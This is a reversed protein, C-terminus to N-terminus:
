EAPVPSAVAVDIGAAALAQAYSLNCTEVVTAPSAMATVSALPASTQPLERRRSGSPARGDGVFLSPSSRPPSLGRSSARFLVQQNGQGYLPATIPAPPTEPGLRSRPTSVPPGLLGGGSSGPPLLASSVHSEQPHGPTPALRGREYDGKGVPSVPVRPLPLGDRADRAPAVSVPHTRHCAAELSGNDQPRFPLGGDSTAPRGEAIRLVPRAPTSSSQAPVLQRQQQQQSRLAALSKQAADLRSTVSAFDSGLPEIPLHGPPVGPDACATPPILRAELNSISRGIEDVRSRLGDDVIPRLLLMRLLRTNEALPRADVGGSLTVSASLSPACPPTAEVATASPTIAAEVASKVAQVLELEAGAALRRADEAAGGVQASLSSVDARLSLTARDLERQMAHSEQALEILSAVTSEVRRGREDATAVENRLARVELLLAGLTGSISDLQSRTAAESERFQSAAESQKIVLTAILTDVTRDM